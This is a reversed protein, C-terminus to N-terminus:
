ISSSKPTASEVAKHQVTLDFELIFCAAALTNSSYEQKLTLETPRSQLVSSYLFSVMDVKICTRGELKLDISM